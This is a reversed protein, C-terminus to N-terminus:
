KTKGKGERENKERKGGGTRKKEERKKKWGVANKEGSKGESTNLDRRIRERVQMVVENLCAVCENLWCSNMHERKFCWVVLSMRTVTSGM